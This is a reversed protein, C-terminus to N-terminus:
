RSAIAPISLAARRIYKTNRISRSPFLGSLNVIYRAIGVIPYTAQRRSQPNAIMAASSSAAQWGPLARGAKGLAVGVTAARIRDLVGTANAVAISVGTGSGAASM